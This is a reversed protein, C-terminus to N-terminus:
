EEEPRSADLKRKLVEILQEMRVKYFSDFDTFNCHDKEYLRYLVERMKQSPSKQKPEKTM